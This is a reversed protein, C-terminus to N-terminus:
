YVRPAPVCVIFMFIQGFNYLDLSVLSREKEFHNELLEIARILPIAKSPGLFAALIAV